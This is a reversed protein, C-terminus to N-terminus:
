NGIQHVTGDQTTLEIGTPRHDVTMLVTNNVIAAPPLGGIRVERTGDPVLAAVVWKSPRQPEIPVAVMPPEDGSAAGHVRSCGTAVAKGPIRAAVCVVQPGAIVYAEEAARQQAPRLSAQDLGTAITPLPLRPSGQQATSFVSFSSIAQASLTPSPGANSSNAALVLGSSGAVAIVALVIWRPRPM